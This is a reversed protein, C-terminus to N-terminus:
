TLIPLNAPYKYSRGDKVALIALIHCVFAAIWIAVIALGTVIALPITVFLAVFVVTLTGLVATALWTVINFNFSEAAATRVFRDKDKYILWVLLPGVFSLMGASVVAAILPSAHCLVALTREDTSPQNSVPYHNSQPTATSAAAPPTYGPATPPTTASEGAPGYHPPKHGSPPTAGAATHNTNDSSTSSSNTSDTM